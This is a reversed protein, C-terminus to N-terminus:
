PPGTSPLAQHESRWPPQPGVQLRASPEATAGMTAGAPLNVRWVHRREGQDNCKHQRRSAHEQGANECGSIPNVIFTNEEFVSARGGRFACGLPSEFPRLSDPALSRNVLPVATSKVGDDDVQIMSFTAEDRESLGGM